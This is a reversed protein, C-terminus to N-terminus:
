PQESLTWFLDSLVAMFLYRAEFVFLLSAGRQDVFLLFIM